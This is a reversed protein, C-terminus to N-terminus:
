VGGTHVSETLTPIVPKIEVIARRGHWQITCTYEHSPSDSVNKARVAKEIARCMESESLEIRM